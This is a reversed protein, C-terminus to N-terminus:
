DPQDRHQLEWLLSYKFFVGVSEFGALIFGRTGELFGGKTVYVKFWRHVTHGAIGLLSTTRGRGHMDNAWLIAYRRSKAFADRLRVNTLHEMPAALDRVDGEVIPTEHVANVYKSRATRMLRVLRENGSRSRTLARGMFHNRRLLRFAGLGPTSKAREIADVIEAALAPSVREDADIMLTWETTARALGFNRQGAYDTFPHLAVEAGAASAAEATGDDSGSDVVLVHQAFRLAAVCAAIQHAENRTIVVATLSPAPSSASV